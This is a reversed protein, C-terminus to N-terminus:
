EGFYENEISSEKKSDDGQPATKQSEPVKAGAEKVMADVRSKFDDKVEHVDGSLQIDTFMFGDVAKSFMEKPLRDRFPNALEAPIGVKFQGSVKGHEDIMFEGKLKLHKSSEATFNTVYLTNGKRHIDGQINRNFRPREYWKHGLLNGLDKFFPFGHMRLVAGQFSSEFELQSLKGPAMVLKAEESNIRGEFFRQAHQPLIKSIPFEELQADLQTTGSSTFPTNGELTISGFKKEDTLRVNIDKRGDHLQILANEIQLGELSPFNLKGGNFSIQTSENESQKLVVDSGEIAPTKTLEGFHINLNSCRIYDYEFKIQSDAVMDDSASQSDQLILRGESSNIGRMKWKGGWFGSLGYNTNLKKLELSKIAGEGEKWVLSVEDMEAAGPGVTLLGMEVSAGTKGQVLQKVKDHFGQSNHYGLSVAISLAVAFFLMMASAILIFRQKRKRKAAEKRPQHSRRKRKRVKLMESGDARVVLKPKEEEDRRNKSSRQLDEVMEELTPKRTKKSM